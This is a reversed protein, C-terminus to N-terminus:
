RRCQGEAVDWVGGNHICARVRERAQDAADIAERDQAAVGDIARQYGITTYHHKVALFGGGAALAVLGAVILRVLNAVVFQAIAAEIM